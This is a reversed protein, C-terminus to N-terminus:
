FQLCPLLQTALKPCYMRFSVVNKLSSLHPNTNRNYGNLSFNSHRATEGIILVYIEKQNPDNISNAGFSFNELNKDTENVEHLTQFGLRISNFFNIPYISIIKRYFTQNSTYLSEIPKKSFKFNIYYGYSYLIFFMVTAAAIGIILNKTSFLRQNPVLKLVLFFYLFYLVFAALVILKMSNLLEIVERFDTQLVLMIFSANVPSKFFLIHVIEVPVFLLAIGNILFATRTKFIFFPLIIFISSLAIIGIKKSISDSFTSGFFALCLAPLLSFCFLLVYLILQRYNINLKTPMPSNTNRTRHKANRTELNKLKDFLERKNM